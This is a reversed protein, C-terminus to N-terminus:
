NEIKKIKIKNQIKLAMGMAYPPEWALSQILAETTPRCSLWLLSPGSGHRYGVGRSMAIGSGKVWQDLGPILGADVYISTM